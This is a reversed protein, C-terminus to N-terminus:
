HVKINTNIKFKRVMVRASGKIITSCRLINDFCLHDFRASVFNSFSFSHNGDHEYTQLNKKSIM